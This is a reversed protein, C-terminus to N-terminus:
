KRRLMTSLIFIVILNGGPSIIGVEKAVSKATAPHDGTIM